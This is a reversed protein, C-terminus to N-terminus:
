KQPFKLSYVIRSINGNYELEAIALKRAKCKMPKINKAVKIGVKELKLDSPYHYFLTMHPRYDDLIDYNGYNDVQSKKKDSLTHYIDHARVLARQFYKESIKVVKNHINLLDNNKKVNLGIWKGEVIQIKDFYLDVPTLSLTTLTNKLENLYTESLAAHHLTVHWINHPNHLDPLLSAIEDNIADAKKTCEEDLLIVIGYENVSKKEAHVSNIVSFLVLISTFLNITIRLQM